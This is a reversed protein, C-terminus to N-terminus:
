CVMFIQNKYTVPTEGGAVPFHVPGVSRLESYETSTDSPLATGAAFCSFDVNVTAM